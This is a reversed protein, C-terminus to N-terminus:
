QKASIGARRLLDSMVKDNEGIRKPIGDRTRQRRREAARANRDIPIREIKAASQKTARDSGQAVDIITRM